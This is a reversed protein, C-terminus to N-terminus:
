GSPTPGAADAPYEDAQAALENLLELIREPSADRGDVLPPPDGLPPGPAPREGTLEKLRDAYDRRPNTAYLHRHLKAATRRAAETRGGLKWLHYRIMGTEAKSHSSRLLQQLEKRCSAADIQGLGTRLSLDLLKARLWVELRGTAEAIGLAEGNVTAAKEDTGRRSSVDALLHLYLCVWYNMDFRRALSYASELFAEARDLCGDRLYSEGIAGAELVANQPNGIELSILLGATHCAMAEDSQGLESYISGLSGLVVAANRIDGAELLLETARSMRNWAERYDGRDYYLVGLNALASAARGRDGLGQYINLVRLTLDMAADFDGQEELVNALTGMGIAEGHVHGIERAIAIQRELSERARGLEGRLRRVNGILGVSRQIRGRDGLAEELRLNREYYDLAQAYQTQRACITGLNLLAEARQITDGAEEALRLQERAWSTAENYRALVTATEAMSGLIAGIGEPEGARELDSRADDLWALAEMPRGQQRLLAAIAARSRATARWDGAELASRLAERYLEAAEPWAGTLQLTEGLERAVDGRVDPVLQLARRYAAVAAENAYVARARRAAGVYFDGALSGEGGLDFHRAVEAATDEGSSPAVTRYAEAVRRHLMTRRAPSMDEYVVVRVQPHSFEYGMRGGDEPGGAERERIIRLRWLLDLNRVLDPQSQESASSLVALDFSRGITAAVDLLDRSGAPLHAFRARIAARLSSPLPSDPEHQWGARLMEVIFLPNGETIQWLTDVFRDSVADDPAVEEALSRISARNLPAVEVEQAPGDPTRDFLADREQGASRSTGILLLRADPDFRYLHRIANASDPDCWQIDDIVLVLPQALLVSRAIADLLLHRRWDMDGSGVRAARDLPEAPATAGTTSDAGLSPVLQTLQAAWVPELAPLRRAIVPSRLLRAIAAFPLGEEGPNCGVQVAPIGQREAWERMEQALRTKGVGPEGTLLVGQPSGGLVRKWAEQLDQWEAERGVLPPRGVPGAAGPPQADLLRQYMQQLEPGPAVQLDRELASACSHYVRVAEARNGALAHLRMMSLYADERLPEDLVMRQAFSLASAPDGTAEGVEVGRTLLRLFRSQLREREALAWEDYCEPLFEGSYAAVAARISELDHASEALRLFRETDLSYPRDAHWVLVDREAALHADWESWAGRLDHLLKRLNNRGGADSADPWFLAAIRGRPQPEGAHLALWALLSQQRPSRVDVRRGQDHLDFGGLLRMELPTTLAEM